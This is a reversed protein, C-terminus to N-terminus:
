MTPASWEVSADRLTPHPGLRVAIGSSGYIPSNSPLANKRGQKVLFDSFRVKWEGFRQETDASWLSQGLGVKAAQLAMQIGCGRLDKHNDYDNGALIAILFIRYKDLRFKQRLADAKYVRVMTRSWEPKGEPYKQRKPRYSEEHRSHSIHLRVDPYRLRVLSRGRYGLIPAEYFPTGLAILMDKYLKSLEDNLQVTM